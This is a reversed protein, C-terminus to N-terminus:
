KIFKNHLADINNSLEICRNRLLIDRKNYEDILILCDNIMVAQRDIEQDLRSIEAEYEQSTM